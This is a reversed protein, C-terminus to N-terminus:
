DLKGEAVFVNRVLPDIRVLTGTFSVEDGHQLGAGAGAPLGLVADIDTNGYLDHDITAVTAILKTGGEAGLDSGARITDVSKVRGTWRVSSGRYKEDFVRKSEFSLANGAFIEESLDTPDPGTASSAQAPGRPHELRQKWGVVDPDAPVLTELEGVRERAAEGDGATALTDLELLQEALTDARKRASKRLQTAIEALEGRERAAVIAATRQHSRHGSIAGAVDVFRRITSVIVDRSTELRQREFFVRDDEFEVAPYAAATRILVNRLGPELLRRLRDEADTKVVFADDFGSDGVEVDQTGFFKTIRSLSTQRTLRFDFGPSPFRVLYRTFTQNSKGSSRRRVDVEVRMGQITGSIRPTALRPQDYELGLIEAAEAWLAAIRKMHRSGAVVALVIGIVIIPFFISPVHSITDPAPHRVGSAPSRVLVM